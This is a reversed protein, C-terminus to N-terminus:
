SPIPPSPHPLPRSTPHSMPRSTAHHTPRSTRSEQAYINKKKLLVLSTTAVMRCSRGILRKSSDFTQVLRWVDGCHRRVDKVFM